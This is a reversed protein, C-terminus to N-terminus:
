EPGSGMWRIDNAIKMLSAALTKLCSSAFVMADHAALLSYRNHAPLFALRTVEAIKEIAKKGFEPHANLGTGVATGGLALKYLDKLSFLIRDEDEQLQTVYGSFEQGLSLPVADMLHTRGIKVISAFAEEKSQLAKRLKQLAPLLRHTMEEVAAIHMATPFVDNSSQSLNVHDNPHILTKDGKTGGLKEIAVNAIVENANMNSHTGSGTQWISVPFEADWKGMAVEEAAEAIKEGKESPLLGLECHVKAAAQKILWLARIMARPLVDEGIPFYRLSRATQSGFYRDIPVEISGLSDKEIRTAEKM